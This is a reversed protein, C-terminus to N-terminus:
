SMMSEEVKRDKKRDKKKENKIMLITISMKCM